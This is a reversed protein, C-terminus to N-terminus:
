RLVNYGRGTLCRKLVTIRDADKSTKYGVIGMSARDAAVGVTNSAVKAVSTHDQNAITACDAYDKDYKEKDVKALDVLDYGTLPKEAVSPEMSSCAALSLASLVCLLAHRAAPRPARRSSM